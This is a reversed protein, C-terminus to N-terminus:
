RAAPRRRGCLEIRGLAPDLWAGVEASGRCLDVVVAGPRALGATRHVLFETRRRPVFVGPDVATQLGGCFDAWRLVHELPM